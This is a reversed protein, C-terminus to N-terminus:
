YQFKSDVCYLPMQDVRKRRKKQREEEGDDSKSVEAEWSKCRETVPIM